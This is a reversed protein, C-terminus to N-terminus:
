SDSPCTESDARHLVQLNDHLCAPPQLRLYHSVELAAKASNAMREALLKPYAAEFSTAFVRKSGEVQLRASLKMIDM